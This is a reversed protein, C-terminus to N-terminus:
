ASPSSPGTSDPFALRAGARELDQSGTAVWTLGCASSTQLRAQGSRNSIRGTHEGGAPVPMTAADACARDWMIQDHERLRRLVAEHIRRRVEPLLAQAM